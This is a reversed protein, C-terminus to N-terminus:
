SSNMHEARKEPDKLKKTIDQLHYENHKALFDSDECDKNFRELRMRLNVFSHTMLDDRSSLLEIEIKELQARKM